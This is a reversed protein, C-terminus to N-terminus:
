RREGGVRQIDGETFELETTATALSLKAPEDNEFWASLQQWARADHSNLKQGIYRLHHLHSYEEWRLGLNEHVRYLPEILHIKKPQRNVTKRQRPAVRKPIVKVHGVRRRTVEVNVRAAVEYVITTGVGVERAIEEARAETIQDVQEAYSWPGETLKSSPSVAALAKDIEASSVHKYRTEYGRGSLYLSRLPTPAIVGLLDAVRNRRIAFDAADAIEDDSLLRHKRPPLTPIGRRNLGESVDLKRPRIEKVSDRLFYDRCGYCYGKAKKGRIPLRYLIMHGCPAIYRYPQVDDQFNDHRPPTRWGRDVAPHPMAGAGDGAPLARGSDDLDPHSRSPARIGQRDDIPSERFGPREASRVTHVVSSRGALDYHKVLANDPVRKKDTYDRVTFPHKKGNRLIRRNGM